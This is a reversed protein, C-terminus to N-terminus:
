PLIGLQITFVYTFYLLYTLQIIFLNSFCLLFNHFSISFIISFYTWIHFPPLNFLSCIHFIHFFGL